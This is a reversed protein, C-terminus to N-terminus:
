EEEQQQQQQTYESNVLRTVVHKNDQTSPAILLQIPKMFTQCSWYIM